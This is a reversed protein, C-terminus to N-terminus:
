LSDLLDRLEDTSKDMLEKNEKEYLIKLIRQKKENSVVSKEHEKIEDEKIKFVSEVIGMKNKVTNIKDSKDSDILLGTNEDSLDSLQKNLISYIDSLDELGLKFLDETDILGRNSNYRYGKKLATVWVNMNECGKYKKKKNNTFFLIHLFFIILNIIIKM